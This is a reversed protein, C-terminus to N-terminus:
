SLHHRDSLWGDIEIVPRVATAELRPCERKQGEQGRGRKRGGNERKRNKRVTQGKTKGGKDGAYEPYGIQGDARQSECQRKM